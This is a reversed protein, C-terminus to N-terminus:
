KRPISKSAYSNLWGSDQAGHGNEDLKQERFGLDLDLQGCQPHPFLWLLDRTGLPEKHPTVKFSSM